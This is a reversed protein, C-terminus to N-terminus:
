FSYFLYLFLHTSFYGLCTGIGVHFVVFCNLWFILFIVGKHNVFYLRSDDVMFTLEKMLLLESRGLWGVYFVFWSVKRELHSSDVPKTRGYLPLQSDKKDM